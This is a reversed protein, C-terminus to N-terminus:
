LVRVIRANDMWSTSDMGMNAVNNIWASMMMIDITFATVVTPSGGLVSLISVFLVIPLTLMTRVNNTGDAGRNVRYHISCNVFFEPYLLVMLLVTHTRHVM